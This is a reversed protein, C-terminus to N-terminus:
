EPEKQTQLLHKLVRVRALDTLMCKIVRVGYEELPKRVANKLKTDLTGKEQERKLESWTFQCLVAHVETASIDQVLKIAHQCLTLLKLVDPVDYVVIGQAVFTVGDKSEITQALLQDTQRVVPYSDVATTIPWYWHLGPKLEVARAGRVYKVFGERVEVILLRPFLRGLYQALQNLWELM